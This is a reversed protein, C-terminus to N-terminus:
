WSARKGKWFSRYVGGGHGLYRLATPKLGQGGYPRGWSYKPWRYYVQHVHPYPAAYGTSGARGILTNDTVYQGAVVNVTNLHASLSVYKGNPSRIVVMKGYNWWGEPDWGAYTVYGSRLPSFLRDGVRLYYDIAYLDNTHYGSYCRGMGWNGHTNDGWFNPTGMTSWGNGNADWSHAIQLFFGTPQTWCGNNLRYEGAMAEFTPEEDLGEVDLVPGVGAESPTRSSEEPLPGGFLAEPSNADLLGLSEVGRTPESFSLTDILAHGREDLGEGYYTVRYVRDDSSFYLNTTVQGGPIPGLMAAPMGDVVHEGRKLEVDPFDARKDAIRQEVDAPRAGYDIAVRLVASIGHVVGDEIHPEAIVIGYTDWLYPDPVVSWGKPVRLEVGVVDDAHHVSEESGDALLTEWAGTPRGVPLLVDEEVIVLTHEGELCAPTWPLLAAMLAWTRSRKFM